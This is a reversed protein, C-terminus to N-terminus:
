ARHLRALSPVHGAQLVPPGVRGGACVTFRAVNVTHRAQKACLHMIPSFSLERRCSPLGRETRGARRSRVRQAASEPVVRYHWTSGRLATPTICRRAWDRHLHPQPSDLGPASTAAALGTGPCIHCPHAWDRHLHPQPSGLGPASTAAALGTRTCINSPRAWDRHLHPRPSGLGPASSPPTLGTGTCILVPRARDRHLHPRFLAVGPAPGAQQLLARAGDSEEVRRTLSTEAQRAKQVHAQLEATRESLLREARQLRARCEDLEAENRGVGSQVADAVQMRPPLNLGPASTSPRARDQRPHAWDRHLHPLPSGM